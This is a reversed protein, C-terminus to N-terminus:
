KFGYIGTADDATNAVPLLQQLDTATRVHRNIGELLEPLERSTVRSITAFRGLM